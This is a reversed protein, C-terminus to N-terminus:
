ADSGPVVPPIDEWSDGGAIICSQEGPITVVLSWTGQDSRFVEALAGGGTMAMAVPQEHFRADLLKAIFDRPGCPVGRGPEASVLLVSAALAAAALLMRM